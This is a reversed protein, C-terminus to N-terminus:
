KKDNRRSIRYPVGLDMYISEVSDGQFDLIAQQVNKDKLNIAMPDKKSSVDSVSLVQAFVDAMERDQLYRVYGKLKGLSDSFHAGHPDVIYPVVKDGKKAFFVFDPRLAQWGAPASWPISFVYSQGNAPNRYFAIAKPEESDIGEVERRVIGDELDNLKLRVTGDPRMIIHREYFDGEDPLDVRRPWDMTVVTEGTAGYRLQNYKQRDAESLEKLDVSLESDDFLQKQKARAWAKMSKKIEDCIALTALRVDIETKDCAPRGTVKDPHRMLRRYESVYEKSRFVTLAKEAARALVKPDKVTPTETKEGEGTGMDIILRFVMEEEVNKRKELYEDRHSGCESDLREAFEGRVTKVADRKIGTQAFLTATDMLDQFEDKSKKSRRVAKISTWAKKIAAYEEPTFVTDRPDPPTPADARPEPEGQDGADNESPAEKEYPEEQGESESDDIWDDFLGEDWGSENGPEPAPEPTPEPPEDGEGAAEEKAGTAEHRKKWEEWAKAAEPHAEENAVPNVTVAPGAIEEDQGGTIFERVKETADPDFKPLFCGISNLWPDGEISRALPARVIRGILQGIYDPKNRTRESFLVEARPCDWGNSVAEKAFLVRVNRASQVEEPKIYPVAYPGCARSKHDGFVHAFSLSPNIGPVMGKIDACLKKIHDDSANDEVQVVMLPAVDPEGEAACYRDWAECSEKFRQCAMKLYQADTATGSKPVSVEVTHKILGSTQVDQPDVKVRGKYDRFGVGNMQNRAQMSREFGGPTATVGIVMPAPARGDADGDILLSAITRKKKGTVAGEEDEPRVYGSGFGLHAEDIFIYVHAGPEKIARDLVQYFTRGNNEEGGKTLLSGSGLLSKSLMYIHGRQLTEHAACFDNGVVEIRREDMIGDALKDSAECFRARTQAQLNPDGSVWLVIADPDAEIELNPDGFFISELLAAAMVTKGSGTPSTFTLSSPEGDATYDRRMRTLKKGLERVADEQFEKLQVQM